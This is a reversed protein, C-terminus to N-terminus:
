KVPPMDPVYRRVAEVIKSFNRGPSDMVGYGDSCDVVKLSENTQACRLYIERVRRQLDLSDEHIDSRGQLYARDAGSRRVTLRSETFSFPVDLFLSVDPVPLRNYEFELDLIWGRLANQKDEGELKACQFAINSYVYRDTVVYKGERLWQRIMPAADARDGAFILAVLYPDVGEVPGSEGRLFRAILGGYVPADFRPFHLFEYGAGNESLHRKLLDLQTSKGAGDLGELVIFPM